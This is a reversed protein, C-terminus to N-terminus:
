YKEAANEAANNEATNQYLQKLLVTELYKEPLM